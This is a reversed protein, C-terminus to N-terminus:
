DDDAAKDPKGPRVVATDAVDVRTAGDAGKSLRIRPDADEPDAKPARTLEERRAEPDVLEEPTM